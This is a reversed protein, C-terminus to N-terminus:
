MQGKAMRVGRVACATSVDTDREWTFTELRQGDWHHDRLVLLSVPGCVSDRHVVFMTYVGSEGQKGWILSSCVCMYM